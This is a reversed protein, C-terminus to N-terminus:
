FNISLGAKVGIYGADSFFNNQVGSDTEDRTGFGGCDIEAFVTTHPLHLAIGAGVSLEATVMTDSDVTRSGVTVPTRYNWGMWSFRMDATVYPQFVTYVPTFSHRGFIGWQLIKPDTAITNAHSGTKLRYQGYGALLGFANYRDVLIGIRLAGENYWDYDSDLMCRHEITFDFTVGRPTTEAPRLDATTASPTNTSEQALGKLALAALLFCFLIVKM